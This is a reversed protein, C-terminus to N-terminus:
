YTIGINKNQISLEVEDIFPDYYAIIEGLSVEDKFYEKILKQLEEYDKFDCGYVLQLEEIYMQVKFGRM